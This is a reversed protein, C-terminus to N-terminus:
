HRYFSHWGADTVLADLPQDHPESPVRDVLQEAYAVGVTRVRGKARLAALTRDYYGKGFGLRMGKRDVGVLPVLVLEPVLEPARDVPEEVGFSGTELTDGPRWGRFLLPQDDAQMVPLCLRAGAEMFAAMLPGPDMEHHLPRYGAVVQGKEPRWTPAFHAAMDAAAQPRRTAAAIRDALLKQRLASKSRAQESM